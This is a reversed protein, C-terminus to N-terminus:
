ELIFLLSHVAGAAGVTRTNTGTEKAGATLIASTCKPVEITDGSPTSARATMITTAETIASGIRPDASILEL